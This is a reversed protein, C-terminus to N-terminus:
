KLLPELSPLKLKVIECLSPNSDTCSKKLDELQIKVM